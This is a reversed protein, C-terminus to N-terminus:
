EAIDLEEAPEEAASPTADSSSLGLKARAAAYAASVSSVVLEGAQANRGVCTLRQKGPAPPTNTPGGAWAIGSIAVNLDGVALLGTRNGWGNVVTNLTSARNGISGIVEAALLTVQADVSSPKAKKV